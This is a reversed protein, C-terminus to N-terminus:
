VKVAVPDGSGVVTGPPLEISVATWNSALIVFSYKPNASSLSVDTNGLKELNKRVIEANQGKVGEQDCQLLGVAVLRRGRHIAVERETPAQKV